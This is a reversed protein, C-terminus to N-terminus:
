RAETEGKRGRFARNFRDTLTSVEEASEIVQGSAMVLVSRTKAGHSADILKGAKRAEARLRVVPSSSPNVIAIVQTAQASNGRGIDIFPGPM